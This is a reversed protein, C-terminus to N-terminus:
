TVGMKKRENTIWWLLGIVTAPIGFIILMWIVTWISTYVFYDLTWTSLAVNWNGDIYVRVSFAIWFLLTFAGGGSSTSSSRSDFFHYENREDYPLRRWWVWGASSSIVVPIGIFILEWLIVHLIFTIVNNLTWQGLVSPVLGTSQAGTIFWLFVYVAGVAAIIAALGFLILMHWHKRLFRRWGKPDNSPMTETTMKTRTEKLNTCGKFMIKFKMLAVFEILFTM